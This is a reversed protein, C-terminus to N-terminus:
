HNRKIDAMGADFPQAEDEGAKASDYARIAELEELDAPMAQNEDLSILVGTRPM